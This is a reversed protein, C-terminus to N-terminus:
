GHIKDLVKRTIRRISPIINEIEYVTEHFIDEFVTEVTYTDNKFPGTVILYPIGGGYIMKGSKIQRRTPKGGGKKLEVAATFKEFFLFCDPAGITGGPAHEIWLSRHKLRDRIIKRLYKEKKM